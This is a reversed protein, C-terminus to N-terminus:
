SVEEPEPSLELAWQQALHWRRRHRGLKVPDVLQPAGAIESAYTRMALWRVQAALAPREGRPVADVLNAWTAEAVSTDAVTVVLRVADHHRPGTGAHEWDIVVVGGGSNLVNHRHFDNHVTADRPLLDYARRTALFARLELGARVMRGVRVPVTRRPARWTAAATLFRPHPLAQIRDAVDLAATAYALTEGPEDVARRSVLWRHDPDVAVIEATPIGHGAAWRRGEAERRVRQVDATSTARFVVLDPDTLFTALTDVAM